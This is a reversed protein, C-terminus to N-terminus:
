FRTTERRIVVIQGSLFLVGYVFKGRGFGIRRDGHSCVAEWVCFTARLFSLAAKSVPAGGTLYAM